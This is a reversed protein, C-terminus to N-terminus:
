SQEEDNHLGFSRHLHEILPHRANRARPRRDDVRIDAIVTAPCSGLVLIRDALYVAKAMDHTVFPVSVQQQAVVALLESQLGARNGPDLAAFTEDMLLLTREVVLARELGARQRQGASLQHPWKGAQDSLNM